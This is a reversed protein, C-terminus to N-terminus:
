YGYKLWLFGRRRSLSLFTWTLLTCLCLTVLYKEPGSISLIHKNVIVLAFVFIFHSFYFITSAARLTRYPLPLTVEHTLAFRFLAAALLPLSWCIDGEILECGVATHAQRLLLMEIWFLAANGVLLPVSHKRAALSHKRAFLYGITCFLLGSTWSLHFAGYAERAALLPFRLTDPLLVAYSSTLVALTYPILATGLLASPSLRRALLSILPICLILAMLFWSGGFTSGLFLGRLLRLLNDGTPTAPEIFFHLLTIPLEVTFWFLYLRALRSVYHLLNQETDPRRFFLYASTIFFFPVAWRALLDIAVFKATGSFPQAHIAVVLLAAVFKLLDITNHSRASM